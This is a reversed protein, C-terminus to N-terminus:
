GVGDAPGRRLESRGQPLDKRAASMISSLNYQKM